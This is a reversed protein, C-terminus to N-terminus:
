VMCSYTHSSIGYRTCTIIYTYSTYVCRLESIFPSVSTSRRFSVQHMYEERRIARDGFRPVSKKPVCVRSLSGYLGDGQRLLCLLPDKSNTCRNMKRHPTSPPTAPHLSLFTSRRCYFRLRTVFSSVSWMVVALRIWECPAIRIHFSSCQRQLVATSSFVYM